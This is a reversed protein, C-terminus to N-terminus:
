NFRAGLIEKVRAIVPAPVTYNSAILKDLNAGPQPDLDLQRLKIEEKFKDDNLTALFAKKYAEVIPGPVEPPMLFVRGLEQRALVLQFAQRQEDTKVYEMVTSVNPLTADKSLGYQAIIKLKNESMLRSQTTKLNTLSTSGIGRVEGREMALFVENAATYGSVVKFKTGLVGNLMTPLVTSAGGTGGVAVETNFADELSNVPVDHWLAIVETERAISGLWNFKRSDYKATDPDLLSAMVAGPNISGIVSGDRAAVNYLHNLATIAGAAPMNQPIFTVNGPLYRPMHTVLIRSYMDYTTGAAAGIIIHVTRDKFFQEANQAQVGIASAHLIAVGLVLARSVFARPFNM